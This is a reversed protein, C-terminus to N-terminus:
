SRGDGFFGQDRLNWILRVHLRDLFGDPLNHPSLVTLQARARRARELESHCDSCFALHSEIVERQAAPLDDDLYPEIINIIQKCTM